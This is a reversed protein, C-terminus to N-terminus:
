DFRLDEMRRTTEDRLSNEGWGQHSEEKRQVRKITIIIIIIISMIIMM